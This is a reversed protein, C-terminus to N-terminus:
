NRLTKRKKFKTNLIFKFNKRLTQRRVVKGCYFKVKTLESSLLGQLVIDNNLSWKGRMFLRVKAASLKVQLFAVSLDNIYESLQHERRCNINEPKFPWVVPVPHFQLNEAPVTTAFQVETFLDKLLDNVDSQRGIVKSTLM